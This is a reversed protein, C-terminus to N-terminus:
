DVDSLDDNLVHESLDDNLDDNLVKDGLDDNVAGDGFLGSLDMDEIGKLTPVFEGALDAAGVATMGYGAFKVMEQKQSMLFLGVSLAIGAKVKGNQSIKGALNKVFKAAVAGGALPLASSLSHQLHKM